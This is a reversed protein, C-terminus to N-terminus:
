SYNELYENVKEEIMDESISNPTNYIKIGYDDVFYKIKWDVYHVPPIDYDGQSYVSTIDIYGIYYEDISIEFEIEAEYHREM